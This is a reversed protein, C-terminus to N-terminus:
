AKSSSLTEDLEGLKADIIDLGRSLEDRGIPLPPAVFVQNYRVLTTLGQEHLGRAFAKSAPSSAKDPHERESPMVKPDLEIVGLLGLSRADRVAPHRRAERLRTELFAGQAAANDVLHEETLVDQVAMAVRLLFPHANYTLGGWFVNKRFHEAIPDSVAVCGLPVYGSTLGKATTVIDPVVGQHEFAFMRGTRGFGTLIEDCVLLIGHRRLLEALPKLYGAPPVAVGNTGPVTEVFMAAIQSPGEVHIVEEVYELYRRAKEADTEGFSFRDPEINLLRVYGPLPSIHRGRVDGALAMTAHTAGHYARHRGLVKLRGTYQRAIKIANENAEAGGLTFFFTNLDGPFVRALREGLRARVETAASPACYLLDDAAEHMARRVAPHGHGINVVFMQSWFDLLRHGETTWLYLGEAREIALPSLADGASWSFMTHKRCLDVITKTDM